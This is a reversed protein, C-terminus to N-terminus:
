CKDLARQQLIFITRHDELAIGTGSRDDFNELTASIFCDRDAPCIWVFCNNCSCPDAFTPVNTKAFIEDQFWSRWKGTSVISFISSHQFSFKLGSATRIVDNILVLECCLECNANLLSYASTYTVNNARGQPQIIKGLMPKLGWTRKKPVTIELSCCIILDDPKTVYNVPSQGNGVHNPM